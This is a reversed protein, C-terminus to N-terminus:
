GEEKSHYFISPFSLSNSGLLRIGILDL